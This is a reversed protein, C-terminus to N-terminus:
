GDQFLRRRKYALNMDKREKVMKDGMVEEAGTAVMKEAVAETADMAAVMEDEMADNAGMAGQAGTAMMEDQSVLGRNRCLKRIKTSPTALPVEAETHNNGGTNAITESSRHPMLEEGEPVVGKM